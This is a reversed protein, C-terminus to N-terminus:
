PGLLARVYAQVDLGNIAGDANIDSECVLDTQTQTGMLVGLFNAVSPLPVVGGARISGTVNLTGLGPNNPDIPSSSNIAIVVSVTRGSVTVDGNFGVPSIALTSLDIAANCLLGAANMGACVLNNSTYSMSGTATAPVGAYSFATAIVPTPPQPTGPTAYHFAVNSAVADFRGVIIGWNLNLNLTNSLAFDFDHLTLATPGTLCDLDTVLTGTVPSTDTDCQQNTVTMCLQVSVSSQVPNVTLVTPTGLAPAVVFMAISTAIGMKM